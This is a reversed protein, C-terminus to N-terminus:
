QHNKLNILTKAHKRQDFYLTILFVWVVLGFGCSLKVQVLTYSFATLCWSKELLCGIGFKCIKTEPFNSSPHDPLGRLNLYSFMQAVLNCGVQQCYTFQRATFVEIM